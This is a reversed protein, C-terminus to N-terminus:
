RMRAQAKLSQAMSPQAMPQHGLSDMRLEHSDSRGLYSCYLAVAMPQIRKTLRSSTHTRNHACSSLEVCTQWANVCVRKSQADGRADSFPLANTYSISHIMKMNQSMIPLMLQLRARASKGMAALQLCLIGISLVHAHCRYM